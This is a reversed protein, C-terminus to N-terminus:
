RSVEVTRFRSLGLLEGFMDWDKDVILNAAAYRLCLELVKGYPGIVSGQKKAPEWDWHNLVDAGQFVLAQLLRYRCRGEHLDLGVRQFRIFPVDTLRRLFLHRDHAAKKRIVVLERLTRAEYLKRHIFVDATLPAWPEQALALVQRHRCWPCILRRCFYQGPWAPSLIVGSPPCNFLRRILADKTGRKKIFALFARYRDFVTLFAQAKDRLVLHQYIEPRIRAEDYTYDETSAIIRTFDGYVVDFALRGAPTSLGLAQVSYDKSTM